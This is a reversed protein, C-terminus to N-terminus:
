KQMRDKNDGNTGIWGDITVMMYTDYDIYENGYKDRKKKALYRHPMIRESQPIISLPKANKTVYWGVPSPTYYVVNDNVLLSYPHKSQLTSFKNKSLIGAISFAYTCRYDKLWKMGLDPCIWVDSDYPIYGLNEFLANLGFTEPLGRRDYKARYGKAARFGWHGGLSPTREASPLWDDNDNAYMVEALYLSRLNTKCKLAKTQSKARGLVPVAISMLLAIISIVVLLEILTFGKKQEKLYNM